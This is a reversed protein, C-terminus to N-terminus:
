GKAPEGYKVAMTAPRLSALVTIFIIVISTAAFDQWAM